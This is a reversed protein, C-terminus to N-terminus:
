INIETIKIKLHYQSTNNFLAKDNNLLDKDVEYDIVSMFYPMTVRQILRAM